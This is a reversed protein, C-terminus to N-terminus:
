YYTIVDLEKLDEEGRNGKDIEKIPREVMEAQIAPIIILQICKFPFEIPPAKPDIKTLAVFVNEKYSPDIIGISNSLMYGSSIISSKPCIQVYYGFDPCIKIGTDYLCTVDSLRKYEKIISLDFGIDSARSKYPPIAHKDTKYWRCKPIKGKNNKYKILSPRYTAWELYKNYKRKMYICARNYMKHMFDQANIGYYYLRSSRESFYYKIGGFEGLQKLFSHSNSSIDCEPKSYKIPDRISGNGDFYGRIFGWTLLESLLNPFKILNIKKEPNIKLHRCIDNCFQQSYLKVEIIHECNKKYTINSSPSVIDRIKKLIDLDRKNISITTVSKSLCSNATIFGLIYAKEDTDIVKFFNDLVKSYKYRSNLMGSYELRRSCYFCIVMGGNQKMSKLVDRYEKKYEGECKESLGFDCKVLVKECSEDTLMEVDELFM